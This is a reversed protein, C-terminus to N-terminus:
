SLAELAALIRRRAAAIGDGYSIWYDRDAYLGREGATRSEKDSNDHVEDLYLNLDNLAEVKAADAMDALLSIARGTEGNKHADLAEWINAYRHETADTM